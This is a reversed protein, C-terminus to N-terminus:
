LFSVLILKYTQVTSEEKDELKRYLELVDKRHRPSVMVELNSSCSGLIKDRMVELTM